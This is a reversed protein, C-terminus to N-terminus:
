RHGALAAGLGALAASANCCGNGAAMGWWMVGLWPLLPVYDETIPKYGILGLWNLAM